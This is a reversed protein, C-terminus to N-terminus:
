GSIRGFPSSKELLKAASGSRSHDIGADAEVEHRRVSDNKTANLRHEPWQGTSNAECPGLLHDGQPVAFSRSDDAIPHSM